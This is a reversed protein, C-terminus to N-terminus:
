FFNKSSHTDCFQNLEKLQDRDNIKDKPSLYFTKPVVEYLKDLKKEKNFLSLLSFFLGKKSSLGPNNELHNLITNQNLGLNYRPKSRYMEWILNPEEEVEGGGGKKSKSSSNESTQKSNRLPHWWSRSNM